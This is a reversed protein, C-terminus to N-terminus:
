VDSVRSPKHVCSPSGTVWDPTVLTNLLVDGSRTPFAVPNAKLWGNPRQWEASTRSPSHPGTMAWGYKESSATAVLLKTSEAPRVHVIFPSDCIVLRCVRNTPSTVAQGTRQSVRCSTTTLTSAEPIMRRMPWPADGVREGIYRSNVLGARELM